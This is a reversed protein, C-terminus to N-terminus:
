APVLERVSRAQRLDFPVDFKVRKAAPDPLPGVSHWGQTRLFAALEGSELLSAFLLATAEGMAELLETWSDGAANINLQPCVGIWVGTTPEQAAQWQINNGQIQVLQPRLISV